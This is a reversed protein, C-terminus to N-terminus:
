EAVGSYCKGENCYCSCLTEAFHQRDDSSKEEYGYVSSSAVLVFERILASNCFVLILSVLLSKPLNDNDCIDQVLSGFLKVPPPTRLTCEQPVNDQHESPGRRFLWKNGSGERETPKPCPDSASTLHNSTFSFDCIIM